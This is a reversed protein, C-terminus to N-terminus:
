KFELYKEAIAHTKIASSKKVCQITNMRCFRSNAFKFNSGYMFPLSPLFFINPWSEMLLFFDDLIENYKWILESPLM